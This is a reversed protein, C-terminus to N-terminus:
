PQLQKLQLENNTLAYYLNQLQHLSHLEVNFESSNYRYDGDEDWITFYWHTYRKEDYDEPVWANNYKHFGCMQLVEPTLIIPSLNQLKMRRLPQNIINIGLQDVSHVVQWEGCHLVFNGIRLEETTM